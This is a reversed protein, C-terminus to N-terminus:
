HLKYICMISSNLVSISYEVELGPYEVINNGRFNSIIYDSQAREDMLYIRGRDQKQLMMINNPLPPLAWFIKISDKKSTAILQELGEKFACGWYEFDFHRRLYEKKHSVLENFYVQQFPHNRIMFVGTLVVQLVCIVQIVLKYKRQMLWNVFYLALLIFSPYVFYLHRWDDYIISHLFIVTCIPASFFILHLLFNRNTTNKLFNVPKKFFHIGTLIMGALGAVLWLVPNTILYWVPFYSIPIQAGPIIEGRFLVAGGWNNFHALAVYSEVLNHIPSKHLYPWGAYLAACFGVSFFILSLVPLKSKANSALASIIDMLLVLLIIGFLMIGMVRISTAYGAALGAALFLLPRNKEFAMQCVMLAIILVSLFPVDKSNFFSHAYIRPSLVLMLFGLCAIFRNKFLRFVLVYLCFASILFVVHSVLHRMLYIDRSDSLHLGKELFILLLEFGSGHNDTPTTFLEQQGHVLYNYSLLGEGRMIPEDWAIGYDQYILLGAVLFILFLVIGPVYDAAKKIKM